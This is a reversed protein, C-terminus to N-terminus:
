AAKKPELLKDVDGTVEESKKHKHKLEGKDDREVIAALVEEMELPAPQPRLAVMYEIAARTLQSETLTGDAGHGDAKNIAKKADAQNTPKTAPDPKGGVDQHETVNKVTAM